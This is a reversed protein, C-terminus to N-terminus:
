KLQGAQRAKLFAAQFTQLFHLLEQGCNRQNQEILWYALSELTSLGKDQQNRRLTYQSTQTEIGVRPLDKLWPSQRLMKQSQQWTADIILLGEITPQSAQANPQHFESAQNEDVPYLLGYQAFQAAQQTNKLRHWTTSQINTARKLLRGTNSRKHPENPHFLLTCPLPLTVQPSWQCICQAM